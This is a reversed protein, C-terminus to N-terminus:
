CSDLVLVDFTAMKALRRHYSGDAKALALEDFLRPLRRYLVRLGRRCALQGLACAVYSKGVGTKGTLLVNLHEAIWSGNSLQNLTARPLGRAASAEVGEMCAEAFRLDANKLLRTLRRNDRSLHEADVLLSFREDFPLRATKTDKQQEQWALAMAGLRMALLKQMTPEMLM